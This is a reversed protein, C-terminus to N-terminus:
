PVIADVEIEILWDPDVFGTVQVVTTVPRITGFIEGHIKAVAQWDTIRTLLIRTRTVDAFNGGATKLAQEIIEFCRRTQVVIDGVGACKGNTGIPATGGVAVYPGVRVARSFGIIPELPSGSAINQRTLPKYSRPKADGFVVVGAWMLLGARHDYATLVAM